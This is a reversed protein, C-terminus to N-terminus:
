MKPKPPMAGKPNKNKFKDHFRNRASKRAENKKISNERDEKTELGNDEKFEDIDAKKKAEIDKKNKVEFSIDESTGDAKFHRITVKGTVPDKQKLYRGGMVNYREIPQGKEYDYLEKKYDAYDALSDGMARLEERYKLTSFLSDASRSLVTDDDGWINVEPKSLSIDEDAGLYELAKDYESILEEWDKDSKVGRDWVPEPKLFSDLFSRKAGKTLYKIYKERIEPNLPETM